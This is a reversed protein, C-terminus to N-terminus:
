TQVNELWFSSGGPVNDKWWAGIAQNAVHFRTSNPEFSTPHLNITVQNNPWHTSLMVDPFALLAVAFLCQSLFFFATGSVWVILFQFARSSDGSRVM